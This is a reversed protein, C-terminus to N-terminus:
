ALENSKAMYPVRAIKMAIRETRKIEDYDLWYSVYKGYRRRYVFGHKRLIALAQSARPQAITDDDILCVLENVTVPGGHEHMAELVIRSSRM